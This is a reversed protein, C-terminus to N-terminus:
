ALPLREARNFTYPEVLVTVFGGVTKGQTLAVEAELLKSIIQEPTKRHSM